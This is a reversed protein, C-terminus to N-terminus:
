AGAAKRGRTVLVFAYALLFVRALAAALLTFFGTWSGVFGLVVTLASLLRDDASQPGLLPPLAGTLWGHAAGFAAVLVVVALASLAQAAAM